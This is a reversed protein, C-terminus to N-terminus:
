GIRAHWEGCLPMCLMFQFEHFKPYDYIPNYHLATPTMGWKWYIYGSNYIGEGRLAM